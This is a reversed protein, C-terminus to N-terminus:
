SDNKSLNLPPRWQHYSNATDHLLFTIAVMDTEQYNNTGENM